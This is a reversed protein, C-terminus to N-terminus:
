SESLCCNLMSLREIRAMELMAGGVCLFGGGGAQGSGVYLIGAVELMAVEVKCGNGNRM